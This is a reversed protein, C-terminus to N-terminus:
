HKGFIIGLFKGSRLSIRGKTMKRCNFQRCESQIGQYIRRKKRYISQM